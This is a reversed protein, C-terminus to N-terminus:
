TAGRHFPRAATPAVHQARHDAVGPVDWCDSRRVRRAAVLPPRRTPQGPGRRRRRHPHRHGIRGPDALVTGAEGRRWRRGAPRHGADGAARARLRSPVTTPVVVAVYRATDTRWTRRGPGTAVATTPSPGCHVM